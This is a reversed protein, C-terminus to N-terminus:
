DLLGDLEQRLRAFVRSRAAYVTGVPVGLRAAVEDADRGALVFEQFATWTKPPFDDRMILLARRVLHQRYEAEGVDVLDGQTAMEVITDPGERPLLQRRIERWTDRTVGLLWGRFGHRRDQEFEPMTRMLLVLVEQVLDSANAEELGAQRVWRYLIPTYIQVFRDWAEVNAPGRLRQLLSAPPVQVNGTEV